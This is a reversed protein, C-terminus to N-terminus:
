METYQFETVRYGEKIKAPYGWTNYELIEYDSTYTYGNIVAVQQICNNTSTHFSVQDDMVISVEKPYNITTYYNPKNDYSYTFLVRSGDRLLSTKILNGNANWQLFITDPDQEFYSIPYTRIIRDVHNNSGYIYTDIESYTSRKSLLGNSGYEFFTTDHSTENSFIFDPKGNKYHFETYSGGRMIRYCTGDSNYSFVDSYQSTTINILRKLNDRTFTTTDGTNDPTTAISRTVYVKTANSSDPNDDSKKCSWIGAVGTLLILLTIIRNRM